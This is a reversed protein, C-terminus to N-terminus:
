AAAGVAEKIDVRLAEVEPIGVHPAALRHLQRLDDAARRSRVTGADALALQGVGSAEYPDGKAMILSALKTRSIARSRAFEPEHHDVSYKFRAAAETTVSTHMAVDYLAHATDGHHQADDYFRMWPPDDAPKAIAYADDAAGVAALADQSRSPGIKALARARVTHLMARESATLRDARVLGMEVYTLGEEAQVCWIAQRAMSSLLMARQHWNGGISACQLAFTFRRRAAAHEYADFLMFAVVGALQGMATHLDARLSRPCTLTLLHALRRLQEDAVERVTAGGHSNDWHEFADTIATIEDIHDRGVSRPQEASDSSLLDLMPADMLAGGMAAGASALLSRRNVVDVTAPERSRPDILGLEEDSNVRLVKRLAARYEPRDPRRIVGNELKGVYNATFPSRVACGGPFLLENVQDAVDRRSMTEGPRSPSPLRGRATRLLENAM